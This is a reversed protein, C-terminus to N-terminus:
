WCNIEKKSIPMRSLRRNFRLAKLFALPSPSSGSAGGGIETSMGALFSSALM